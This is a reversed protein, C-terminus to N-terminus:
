GLPHPRPRGQLRQPVGPQNPLPHRKRRRLHPARAVETQPVTNHRQAPTLASPNRGPSDLLDFHAIRTLPAPFTYLISVIQSIELGSVPDHTDDPSQVFYPQWAPGSPRPLSASEYVSPIGPGFGTPNPHRSM